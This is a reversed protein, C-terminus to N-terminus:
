RYARHSEVWEIGDLVVVKRATRVDMLNSVAEMVGITRKCKRDEKTSSDNTRIASHSPRHAPLLRLSQVTIQTGPMVM